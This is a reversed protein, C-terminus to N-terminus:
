SVKMEYPYDLHSHQSSQFKLREKLFLKHHFIVLFNHNDRLEQEMADFGYILFKIM